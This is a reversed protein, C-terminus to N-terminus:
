LNGGMGNKIARAPAIAPTATMNAPALAKTNVGVNNDRQPLVTPPSPLRAAGGPRRLKENTLQDPSTRHRVPSPHDRKRTVLEKRKPTPFLRGNEAQRHM